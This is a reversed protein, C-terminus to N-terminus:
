LLMYWDKEDFRYLAVSERIDPTISKVDHQAADRNIIIIEM